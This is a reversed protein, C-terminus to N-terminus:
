LLWCFLNWLLTSFYQLFLIAKTSVVNQAVPDSLFGNMNIAIKNKFFLNRISEIFKLPFGFKELVKCIYTENVHDYAKASDIAVSIARNFHIKADEMLIRLALGHDGIFRSPMFGAQYQTIVPNAAGIVRSNLIRTFVKCDTNILSIPRWNALDSLDGTKPLLVICTEQWSPPFIALNIADNYVSTVLDKCDDHELILRLIPYPLGDRGPSSVKPCRTASKVIDKLDIESVIFEADEVSITNKIQSLLKDMSYRHTPEPSYLTDYFTHVATLKDETTTCSVGSNPHTISDFNRQALRRDATKKLFGVSNENNDLWKKGAKLSANRALEHEIRAIGHEVKTLQSQLAQQDHQLQRMLRNRTGQLDKLREKRWSSRNSCYAKTLKKIYGKLRDWKIQSSDSSTSLINQMFHSIGSNIKKVYSKNHVLNPNARWLGKGTNSVQLRFSVTMLAHDTWDNSIYEIDNDFYLEKLRSGVMIYDLTKIVQGRRFTPLTEFFPDSYNNNCDHLFTDTFSVFTTPQKRPSNGPLRLDYQFNFDGALIVRELIDAYSDLSKIYDILSNYFITKNYITDAPAYINLVYIPLLNPEAPVTLKALIFRDDDSINITEMNINSNFNLLGCKSTWISQFSQFKLNLMAIRDNFNLSSINSEQCAFIDFKQLRLYRIFSDSLQPNNIKLIYRCKLSGFKINLSKSYNNHNSM